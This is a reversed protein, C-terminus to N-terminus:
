HGTSLFKVVFSVVGIFLTFNIEADKRVYYFTKRMGGCVATCWSGLDFCKERERGRSGQLSVPFYRM